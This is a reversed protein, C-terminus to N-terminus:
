EHHEEEMMMLAEDKLREPLAIGRLDLSRLWDGTEEPRLTALVEAFENIQEENYANAEMGKYTDLEEDDFYEPETKVARMLTKNDCFCNVGCQEADCIKPTTENTTKQLQPPTPLKRRRLYIIGALLIGLVIFLIFLLELM